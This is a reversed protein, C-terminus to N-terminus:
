VGTLAELSILWSLPHKTLPAAKSLPLFSLLLSPLCSALPSPFSPLLPPLFYYIFLCVFLCRQFVKSLKGDWVDQQRWNKLNEQRPLLFCLSPATWSQLKWIPLADPHGYQQLHASAQTQTIPPLPPQQPSGPCNGALPAATLWRCSIGGDAIPHTYSGQPPIQTSGGCHLSFM